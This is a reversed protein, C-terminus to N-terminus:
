LRMRKRGSCFSDPFLIWRFGLIPKEARGSPIVTARCLARSPAASPTCMPPASRPVYLALSSRGIWWGCTFRIFGSLPIGLSAYGPLLPEACCEAHLDPATRVVYLYFLGRVIQLIIMVVQPSRPPLPAPHLTFPTHVGWEAERLACSSWEKGLRWDVRQPVVGRAVTAAHIPKIAVHHKRPLSKAPITGEPPGERCWWGLCMGSCGYTCRCWGLCMGVGRWSCGWVYSM